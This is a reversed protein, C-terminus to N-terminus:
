AAVDGALALDTQGSTLDISPTEAAGALDTQGFLM